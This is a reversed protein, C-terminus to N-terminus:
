AATKVVLKPKKKKKVIKKPKLAISVLQAEMKIVAKAQKDALRSLVSSDKKTQTELKAKISTISKVLAEAAKTEALFVKIKGKQESVKSKLVAKAAIAKKVANKAAAKKNIKAAEKKTVIVKEATTIKVSLKQLATEAKKTTGAMKEATKSATAIAKALIVGSQTTIKKTDKIKKIGGKAM